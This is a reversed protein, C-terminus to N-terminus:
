RKIGLRRAIEPDRRVAALDPDSRALRRYRRPDISLALQLERIALAVDGRVAHLCALNYIADGFSADISLANQWLAEALAHDNSGFADLAAVNLLAAKARREDIVELSRRAGRDIAVILHRGDPAVWIPGLQAAESTMAITKLDIQRTGDRAVIRAERRDGLAPSVELAIQPSVDASRDEPRAAARDRTLREIAAARDGAEASSIVAVTRAPGSPLVFTRVEVAGTRSEFAVLAQMQGTFGLLDASVPGYAGVPPNIARQTEPNPTAVRM